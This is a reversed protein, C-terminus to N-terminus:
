KMLENIKRVILGGISPKKKGSLPRRDKKNTTTMPKVAVAIIMREKSSSFCCSCENQCFDILVAIIAAAKMPIKNRNKGGSTIKM